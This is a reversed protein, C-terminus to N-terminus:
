AAKAPEDPNQGESKKAEARHIAAYYSDKGEGTREKYLEVSKDFHFGMAKIEMAVAEKNALKQKLTKPKAIVRGKLHGELLKQWPMSRDDYKWSLYDIFGNDLDRISLRVDAFRPQQIFRLVEHCEDPTLHDGDRRYGALCIEKMKAVIEARSPNFELNRIRTKVAELEPSTGLDTNSLVLLSGRFEFRDDADGHVNWTVLRPGDQTGTASRILGLAKKDSFLTESDEIWILAERHDRLRDFLGRASIQSNYYVFDAGEKLGENTLVERVTYTKGLGGPGHVMLSPRRKKILQRVNAKIVDLKDKLQELATVDAEDLACSM